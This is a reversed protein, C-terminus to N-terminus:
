NVFNCWFVVLTPAIIGTLIGGILFDRSNLNGSAYAIANPPTSIPLSMAASAALAVPVAVHVEFGLSIAVGIPILVNAAATHSMFNALIVCFYSLALGLGMGGLKEYPLLGVIWEALGTEMVAIGLALGGALLLMVDWQLSRIDEKDIIGFITFITIPFFSIVTIPIDHIPGTMWLLVTLFFTLMVLLRQLRIFRGSKRTAPNLATLDISEAVPKYAIKLYIWIATMLILAPPLGVLIWGGFSVPSVETLAGVAIANPPSGIITGMGGINAAFPIGLLLAKSFPDEKKVAGLVPAMVALMMATTATNSMFMSFGFTIAMTGLLVASPKNGFRNMVMGALWQDLGTKSTAKTLIFGSLFLWMIPSSWPRTFTQWDSATEAFVGGPRGLLLIELAIILLGVSFAPIAESIWLGASLLLIFLARHGAPSLGQFQPIFAIISAIALCIGIKLLSNRSAHLLAAWETKNQEDIQVLDRGKNQFDFRRTSFYLFCM